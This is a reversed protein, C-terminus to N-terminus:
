FYVTKLQKNRIIIYLAQTHASAVCGEREWYNVMDVVHVHYRLQHNKCHCVLNIELGM